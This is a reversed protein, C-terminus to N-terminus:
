LGTGKIGVVRRGRQGTMGGGGLLLAAMVGLTSPEPITAGLSEAAAMLTNFDGNFNAALLGFDTINTMGDGDFDGTEWTGPQNFNGALMGFDDITVILDGNADGPATTLLQLVGNADDYFQGLALVPSIIAGTVESFVGSRLGYTLIDLTDGYNPTFSTMLELVGGFEIDGADVSGYQDPSGTGDARTTGALGFSLKSDPSLTLSETVTVVSSDVTVTGATAGDGIGDKLGVLLNEIVLAGNTLHLSGVSDSGRGVFVQNFRHITGGTVSVSGEAAGAHESVGIWLDGAGTGVLDGVLALSGTANGSSEAVGIKVDVFGTMPGTIEADGVASALNTSHAVKFDGVGTGTAGGSHVILTGTGTNAGSGLGYGVILDRFGTVGDSVVVRGTASGPTATTGSQGITLDDTSNGNFAGNDINLEGYAIGGGGGTTFGVFARSFHDVNGSLVNVVGTTDGATYSRGIVLRNGSPNSLGGSIINLTGIAENSGQSKGVEVHRFGSVGQEVTMEGEAFRNTLFTHGVILDAQPDSGTLQGGVTVFGNADGDGETRAVILNGNVELSGTLSVTGNVSGSIVSESSFVGVNMEQGVSITGSGTSQLVGTFSSGDVRGVNLEGTVALNGPGTFMAGNGVGLHGDITLDNHLTTVSSGSAFATKVEITSPAGDVTLAGSHSFGEAVILGGALHIQGSLPNNLVSDNGNTPVVAFQRGQGVNLENIEVSSLRNFVTLDGDIANVIGAGSTGSLSFFGADLIELTGGSASITGNNNLGNTAITFPVDIPGYGSIMGENTLAPTTLKGGGLSILDGPDVTVNNPFNLVGTPSNTGVAGSGSIESSITLIGNDALMQSDGELILEDAAITGFGVMVTGTTLVLDGPGNVQGGSIQNIGSGNLALSSNANINITGTLDITADIRPAPAQGTVNLTGSIEVDSGTLVPVTFIGLALETHGATLGSQPTTDVNMVGHMIWQGSATHVDLRASPGKTNITGDFQNELGFEKLPDITDVDLTLSTNNLTTIADEFVNGDFDYYSVEITTADNITAFVNNSITGAGTYSGGTFDLVGDLNLKGGANVVVESTDTFQVPAVIRSVGGGVTIRGEIVVTHGSLTTDGIMNLVGDPTLTFGQGFAASSDHFINMTSGFPDVPNSIFLDGPGHVGVSVVGQGSDGDLDFVDAGFNQFTLPGDTVVITGDNSLGHGLELIGYGGFLVGDPITLDNEVRFFGGELDVSADESLELSGVYFQGGTSVTIGGDGITLQTAAFFAGNEFRVISQDDILLNTVEVFRGTPNEGHTVIGGHRILVDDGDDPIEGGQWNTRSHWQTNHLFEKGRPLNLDIDFFTSLPAPIYGIDSAVAIIDIASPLERSGSSLDPDMAAENIALHGGEGQEVQLSDGGVYNPNLKFSFNSNVGLAHGIEHLAVSLLDVSTETLPNSGNRPGQFGVELMEPPDGIFWNDKNNLPERMLKQSLDYESHDFPTPDLFWNRASGNKQTDFSIDGSSSWHGLTDPDDLDSWHVDLNFTPEEGPLYSKWLQAAAKVIPILDLSRDVGNIDFYQGPAIGSTDLDITIAPAPATLVINITAMLTLAVGNLKVTRKRKM